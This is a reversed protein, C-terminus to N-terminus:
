WQRWTMSYAHGHTSVDQWSLGLHSNWRWGWCIMRGWTSVIKARLGKGEVPTLGLFLISCLLNALLNQKTKFFFWTIRLATMKNFSNNINWFRLEYCWSNSCKGQSCQLWLKHSNLLNSLWGKELFHIIGSIFGKAASVSINLQSPVNCQNRIGKQISETIHPDARKMCLTKFTFSLSLEWWFENFIVGKAAYNTCEYMTFLSLQM